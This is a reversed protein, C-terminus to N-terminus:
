RRAAYTKSFGNRSNTVTFTGDRQASVKIWNAPGNHAPPPPTGPGPQPPAMAAVPMVSQADDVDNAIFFAWQYARGKGQMDKPWLPSRYKEALYLNIAASEWMVFGDDDITPVLSNPNMKKYEPTQVVGFQMGADIREYKLGLEEVAWLAKKVNVSNTRGWLKLM